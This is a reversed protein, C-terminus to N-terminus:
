VKIETFIWPKILAARGIVLAALRSDGGLQAEWQEFNYVDGNGVVQFGQLRFSQQDHWYRPQTCTCLVV